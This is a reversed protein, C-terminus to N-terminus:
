GVLVEEPRLIENTATHCHNERNHGLIHLQYIFSYSATRSTVRIQCSSQWLAVLDTVNFFCSAGTAENAEASTNRSIFAALRPLPLGRSPITWLIRLSDKGPQSCESWFVRMTPESFEKTKITLQTPKPRATEYTRIGKEFGSYLLHLMHFVPPFTQGRSVTPV